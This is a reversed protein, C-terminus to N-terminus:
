VTRVLTDWEPFLLATVKCVLMRLFLCISINIDFLYKQKM